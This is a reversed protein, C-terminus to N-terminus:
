LKNHFKRYLYEDNLMQMLDGLTIKFSIINVTKQNKNNNKFAPYNPGKINIEDSILNGYAMLLQLPMEHTNLLTNTEPNLLMINAPRHIDKKNTKPLYPLKGALMLQEVKRDSTAYVIEKQTLLENKM